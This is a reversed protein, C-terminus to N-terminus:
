VGLLCVFLCTYSYLYAPRYKYNYTYTSIISLKEVEIVEVPSRLEPLKYLCRELCPLGCILERGYVQMGGHDNLFSGTGLARWSSVQTSIEREEVKKKTIRGVSVYRMEDKNADSWLIWLTWLFYWSFLIFLFLLFLFFTFILICLFM